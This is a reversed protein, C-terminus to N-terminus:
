CESLMVFSVFTLDHMNRSWKTINYIHGIIQMRLYGDCKGYQSWLQDLGGAHTHGSWNIASTLKDSLM